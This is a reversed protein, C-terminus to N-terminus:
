SPLPAMGDSSMSVASGAYELPTVALPPAPSPAHTSLVIHSGHVGHHEAALHPVSSIHSFWDCCFSPLRSLRGSLHPVCHFLSASMLRARCM